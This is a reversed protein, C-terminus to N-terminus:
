RLFYSGNEERVWDPVVFPRNEKSCHKKLYDVYNQPIKKSEGFLFSAINDSFYRDRIKKNVVVKRYADIYQKETCRYLNLPWDTGYLIYNGICEDELYTRTMRIKEKLQRAKNKRRILHIINYSQDAFFRGQSSWGDALKILNLIQNHWQIELEKYKRAPHAKGGMHAFCIRLNKTKAIELFNSPETYRWIHKYKESKKVTAMYTGAASSHVLIPLNHSGAFDYMGQLNMLVKEGGIDHKKDPYYDKKQFHREEETRPDFGMAPYFKIGVYGRHNYNYRLSKLAHPARPDFGYFLFFRFPYGACARATHELIYAYPHNPDKAKPDVYKYELLLVVSYDIGADNMHDVHIESIKHFGLNDKYKEEGMVELFTKVYSNIKGIDKIITYKTWEPLGSQQKIINEPLCRLDIHHTHVNGIGKKDSM